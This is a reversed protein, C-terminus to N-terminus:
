TRPKVFVGLLSSLNVVIRSHELGSPMTEHLVGRILEGRGGEGSLRLLNDATLLKTVTIAM